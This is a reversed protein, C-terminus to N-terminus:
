PCEGGALVNFFDLVDQDEPFVGNNNFDIDNCAVCNAGALVNFFDVTDQDEPFVGNNNFDIDDCGPQPCNAPVAIECLRVLAYENAEINGNGVVAAPVQQTTVLAGGDATAFTGVAVRVFEPLPEGAALGLENRVNIVGELVGASAQQTQSTTGQDFWGNFNNTSENALFADWNAIQGAKAWNAARLAGAPDRSVYVFRDNGGSAPNTAVYLMDGRLGAWLSVGGNSAVLTSATDRTGDITWQQVPQGGTVTYRWDAGGNSDWTNACNNLAFELSTASQPLTITVTWNAGNQTLPVGSTVNTWGNIGWHLCVSSSGALPRGSPNYTITLQQGAVPQTPSIAVTNGGGGGGSGVGDGVWVHQIASKTVNGRTDVSEIYYDILKNRQGEIKAWYQDAIYQPTEFFNISPDNYVNAAPFVRRTMPVSQWAGVGAGGAYTENETNSLSRQGDVDVRYKLTTSTIGAVDYAFTWVYFDGGGNLNAARQQYGYQPGFNVSGPNWPHRQPYWVTPGTTDLTTNGTIVADAHQVAENCAITPKVEFDEATGYYMYGSNLSGLFFHWAREASTTTASPYLIRGIDLGGAQPGGARTVIQEATAVRNNAATIVAWNRADVHWGNEVDIAGSANLLPWNWNIFQPAGFDGDANVWAGDEVHVFDNAPVPHDALYKEVVTPVYQAANASSALNPTAERYYSFGGGWANDGDHALMVLQPRNPALGGPAMSQIADFGGLGIPAYGDDWSLAQMAPVVIVQSIAGTNPNVYRARRPTTAFPVAEAPSCGRSISKRFYTGAAPNVQDAKNPADTNIGGSGFVVPFDACARSIKESSVIVWDIGEADLVEIMKTSFAMESPFLGRSQPANTGWADNYIRRYLQLEKRLTTADVLPMLPHHFGFQVVDVRPLQTGAAPNTRWARGDRIRQWWTSNYGLQNAAGLSNLNEILGGSFSIQAGGENTWDIDDVADIMRYQYGAVRDPLSFIERLNNTPNFAGADKRQISQWVLEYRDAGGVQQDPWYIPQEMHWLYTYHVRQQAFASGALLALGCPAVFAIGRMSFESFM